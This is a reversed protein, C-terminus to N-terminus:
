NCIRLSLVIRKKLCFKDILFDIFKDYDLICPSLAM